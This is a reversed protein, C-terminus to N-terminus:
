SNLKRFFRKYKLVARDLTHSEFVTRQAEKGIKKALRSHSKLFIIKQAIDDVENNTLLGNIRDKIVRKIQGVRTGIVPKALAMAEYLKMPSYCFSSVFSDRPTYLVLSVDALQFLALYDEHPMGELCLINKFFRFQYWKSAGIVLFVVEKDLEYVRRAVKEILDFPKWRPRGGGGWFVKFFRKDGIILGKSPMRSTKRRTMKKLFSRDIFNSILCRRRIGLEGLYAMLEKSNAVAGDALKALFWRKLNRKGIVLRIKFSRKGWFPEEVRGHVEWILILRPRFVKLLSFKELISSGDIRIYLYDFQGSAKLIKFFTSLFSSRLGPCGVMKVKIGAKEITKKRLFANIAPGSSASYNVEEHNIFLLWPGDGKVKVRGVRVANLRPFSEKPIPKGLFPCLIEWGEGDCINLVLLDEPRKRFYALVAKYHREYAQGMKRRDFDVVGYVDRRLQRSWKSRLKSPMRKTQRRISALWDNKERITLIFKSGPYKKDLLKYDRAVSVDTAAEHADIEALSKPYHCAKYGLIGLARALSTTGTKSLGIGFIKKKKSSESKKM